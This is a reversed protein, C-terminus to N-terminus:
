YNSQRKLVNCIVLRDINVNGQDDMDGFPLSLRCCKYNESFDQSGTHEGYFPIGRSCQERYQKILNQGIINEFDSVYNGTLDREFKESVKSGFLRYIFDEKGDRQVPELVMINGLAKVFQFPDLTTKPPIQNHGVFGRWADFFVQHEVSLFVESSLRNATFFYCSFDSPESISAEWYTGITKLCSKGAETLGVYNKIM